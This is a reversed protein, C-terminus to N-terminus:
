SMKMERNLAGKKHLYTFVRICITLWLFSLCFGAIADSAYHVHLYVRSLAIFFAFLFLLVSTAWKVWLNAKSLWLIYILIGFFTFASFSHGSPYSFGAVNPILPHPPRHRKFINKILFMLGTSTLGIAAIDFSRVSNKKFFLYYSALLIYAPLMFTMSGFFTFRLMVDTIAPSTYSALFDFVSTDFGSEHGLVIEDTIFLFVFLVVAFIALILVLRLSVGKIKESTKFGDEM